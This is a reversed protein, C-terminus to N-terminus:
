KESQSDEGTLPTGEDRSVKVPFKGKIFNIDGNETINFDRSGADEDTRTAQICFTAESIGSESFLYGGTAKNNAIEKDLLRAEALEYLTGFKKHSTYYAAEARHISVLRNIAATETGMKHINLIKPIVIAAVVMLLLGIVSTAIGGIAMGKGGFQQPNKNVNNIAVFGLLIGALSGVVLLGCTSLSLIGLVLSAIAMGKKLPTVTEQQM